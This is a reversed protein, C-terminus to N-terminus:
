KQFLKAVNSVIIGLNIASFIYTDLQHRSISRSAIKVLYKSKIKTFPELKIGLGAALIMVKM